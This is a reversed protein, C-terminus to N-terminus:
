SSYIVANYAGSGCKNQIIPFEMNGSNTENTHFHSVGIVQVM